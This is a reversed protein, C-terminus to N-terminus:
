SVKSNRIDLIVIIFWSLKNLNRTESVMFKFISNYEIRINSLNISTLENGYARGSTYGTSLNGLWVCDVLLEM